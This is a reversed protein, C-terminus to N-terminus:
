SDSDLKIKSQPFLFILLKIEKTNKKSSIEINNDKLKGFFLIGEGNSIKIPSNNRIRLVNILHHLKDDNLVLEDYSEDIDTNYITPVHM